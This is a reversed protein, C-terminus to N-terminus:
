QTFTPNIEREGEGSDERIQKDLEAIRNRRRERTQEEKSPKNFRKQQINENKTNRGIWGSAAATWSKMKNKGVKWGNAEYHNYFLEAEGKTSNKSLFYDILEQPSPQKFPKAPKKATAIAKAPKGPSYRGRMWDDIDSEEWALKRAGLFFPKPFGGEKILKNITPKSLHVKESLAKTGIIM